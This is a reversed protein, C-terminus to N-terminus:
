LQLTPRLVSSKSRVFKYTEIEGNHYAVFLSGDTKHM